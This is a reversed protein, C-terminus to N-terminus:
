KALAEMVKEWVIKVPMDVGLKECAKLEEKFTEDGGWLLDVARLAEVLADHSQLAARITDIKGQADQCVEASCCDETHQTAYHAIDEFAKMPDTM